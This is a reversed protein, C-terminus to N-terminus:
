YFRRQQYIFVFLWNLLPLIGILLFYFVCMIKAIMTYAMHAPQAGLWGLLIVTSFFASCYIRWIPMTVNWFLLPRDILPLILLVAISLGMGIIGGIKHPCARLIAYFPLFYWEPVIHAPTVLCNAFEYNDPHGLINPYFCTIYLYVMLILVLGSGDKVVFYPYFPVKKDLRKLGLPNNSGKMHLIVLHLLVIGVILFPLLYHLSFFRNLTPNDVAFGGWLWEVIRKGIKPIASFINTIVTAGWFSMQGWPLIYGMFATAMALIFIIVGSHWLFPSSVYSRYYIGRAIHIYITTFFFSAGNAHLYRLFWGFNLDRMIHEVSQFAIASNPTYHMALLIGTIIQIVLFLGALSGFGWFYNINAATPYTILHRNITIILTNDILLNRFSRM